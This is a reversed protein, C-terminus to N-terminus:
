GWLVPFGSSLNNFFVDARMINVGTVLALIGQVIALLQALVVMGNREFPLPALGVPNYPQPAYQQLQPDRRSAYSPRGFALPRPPPAGPPIAPM